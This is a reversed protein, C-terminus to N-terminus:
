SLAFIHDILTLPCFQWTLLFITMYPSVDPLPLFWWSLAFGDHLHSIMVCPCFQWMLAFSMYPCFHSCDYDSLFITMYPCFNDCLLIFQWMSPFLWTFSSIMINPWFITVYPCFQWPLFQWILAFITMYPCFDVSWPTIILNWPTFNDFLMSIQKCILAFDDFSVTTIDFPLNNFSTYM